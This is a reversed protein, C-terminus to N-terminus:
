EAEVLFSDSESFSAAALAASAQEVQQRSFLDVIAAQLAEVGQETLSSVPQAWPLRAAVEAADGFVEEVDDLSASSPWGGSGAPSERQGGDHSPAAASDQRAEQVVAGAQVAPERQVEGQSHPQLLQQRLSAAQELEKELM